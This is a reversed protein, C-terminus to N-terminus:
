SQQSTLSKVEKFHHITEESVKFGLILVDDVQEFDGRWSVLENKLIDMQEKLPVQSINLLLERFTPYMYKKQEPGGLQDAFGDSFLYIVDDKQIPIVHNAFNFDSKKLVGDIGFNDPKVQMLKGERVLYLPCAAGAFQLELNNLDLVCLAIDIGSQNSDDHIEEVIEQQLQNLIEAPCMLSQRYIVKNLLHYGNISMLAGSVGHGACDAAAIIIRGKVVDFWYFDGSVTDKPQYFVFSEPLYKGIEVISPLIASQISEAARISDKLETYVKVLKNNTMTLEQTREAVQKELKINQSNILKVRYSNMRYSYAAYIIGLLVLIIITYFWWTAWFPPIIIIKLEATNSFWEGGDHKCRIILTYEGGKLNTYTASRQSGTENWKQDFGELKYAYIKKRNPNFDLAAFEITIVSEKHTLTVTNTETISKSLRFHDDDENDGIRVSENFVLFDTIVISPDSRKSSISDPHFENFGNIGGFYMTGDACKWAASNSFESGQLGDALTFYQFEKDNIDFYTLGQNTSMWINGKFDKLLGRITSSNTEPYNTFRSNKIDLYNLGKMTGLWLNGTEDFLMSLVHNDSISNSDPSHMHHTFTKTKIDFRDLGGGVTGIWINGDSDEALCNILNSNIKSQDGEEMKYQVFQNTEWNYMSLGGWYTGIWINQKSDEFITWANNGSLSTPDNRINKFHKYTNNTKNYMTVGDGWTGIWFNHKSDELVCLVNNGCISNPNGPEHMMYKYKGSKRDFINVGGGDTALLINGECDESINFITAKNLGTKSANYHVFRNAEKNYLNIGGSFTGLWMNDHTDKMISYISKNNLGSLNAPDHNYNYFTGNDPNFVSIGNNDTGIWLNGEADENIALVTNGPLSNDVGEENKFRTFTGTNRDMRCFGADRTTVWFNKKSDEFIKTVNNSSITQTDDPDHSFSKFTKTGKDFQKLGEFGTAVWLVGESDILIDSIGENAQLSDAACTYYNTFKNNKRDFYNIGGISENGANTAIWLDGHEDEAIDVVSSSSISNPNSPDPLYRIFIEKEIDFMSLGGQTAVWINGKSDEVVNVIGNHSLTNPDDSSLFVRFKYGDFRNLGESTGIWIFGKKDQLISNVLSFSLGQERSFHEFRLQPQQALLKIPCYLLFGTLLLFILRAVFHSINFLSTYRSKTM